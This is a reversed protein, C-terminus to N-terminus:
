SPAPSRGRRADGVVAAVNAALTEQSVGDDATVAIGDVQGPEALLRSRRRTTSCCADHRRRALRRHRVQRHRRHHVDRPAGTTLVTTRDGPVFGATDASHKDIVIEDDAIPRTAPRCGTRTSRRRRDDLELGLPRRPPTASPSATRTSSRPTARQHARRSRVVGPSRDCRTSSPPTSAPGSSASRRPRAPQRGPRLRRHRRQCRRPRPRLDQDVTDTLILTGALFAVGLIVALATSLLRLKKAALEKITLRFM